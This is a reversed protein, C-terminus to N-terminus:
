IEYFIEWQHVTRHKLFNLDFMVITIYAIKKSGGIGLLVLFGPLDPYLGQKKATQKM